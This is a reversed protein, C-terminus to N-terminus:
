EQGGPPEELGREIIRAVDRRGDLVREISVGHEDAVYYILFKTGSIVWFRLTKHRTAWAPRPGALPHRALFEAAERARELFRDAAKPGQRISIFAFMRELDDRARASIRANM